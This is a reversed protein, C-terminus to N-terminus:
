AASAVSEIQMEAPMYTEVLDEFNLANFIEFLFNADDGAVTQNENEYQLVLLIAAAQGRLINAKRGRGLMANSTALHAILVAVPFSYRGYITQALLRAKAYLKLSRKHDHRFRAAHAKVIFRRLRIEEGENIEPAIMLDENAIENFRRGINMKKCREASWIAVGSGDRNGASRHLVFTEFRGRRIPEM